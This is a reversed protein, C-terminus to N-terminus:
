RLKASAAMLAPPGDAQRQMDFLQTQGCAVQDAKFKAEYEAQASSHVNSRLMEIVRLRAGADSLKDLMRACSQVVLCELALGTKKIAM